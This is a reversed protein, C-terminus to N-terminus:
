PVTIEQLLKLWSEARKEYEETTLGKEPYWREFGRAEAASGYFLQESYMKQGDPSILFDVFLLAAHPNPANALVGASGANVAVVEM